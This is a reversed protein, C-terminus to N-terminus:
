QAIGLAGARARSAERAQGIIEAVISVAVEVPGQADIDLGIPARLRAVAADDVGLASLGELRQPLRRRAGLVGVYGARSPLAAALAERDLDADHTAVAIATWADPEAQALLTSLSAGGSRDLPDIRRTEWGLHAGLDALAKGFPDSGVVVLRQGPEFLRRVIANQSAPQAADSLVCRRSRGDGEWLAGVRRESLDELERLATDGAEVREVLVELRGGCPLRMDIFPSGQGYVLRRPEGDALVGRGHLAVDAEICGDSLFGHWGEGTIVMQSGTARPGGARAFITALAFPRGKRALAFMRSRLDEDSM